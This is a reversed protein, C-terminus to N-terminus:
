DDNRNYEYFEGNEITEDFDVEENSRIGASQILVLYGKAVLRDEYMDIRVNNEVIQVGKETFEHFMDSMKKTM